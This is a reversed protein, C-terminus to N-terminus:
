VLYKLTKDDEYRIITFTVEAEAEEPTLDFWEGKIKKHHNLKHIMRELLRARDDPVEAKHHIILKEPNGTQISSLRKEVDQSFGIKQFGEKPGIVYIYV